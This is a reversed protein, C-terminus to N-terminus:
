DSDSAKVVKKIGNISNTLLSRVKEDDNMHDTYRMCMFLIHAPLGPMHTLMMQPTLEICLPLVCCLDNEDSSNDDAGTVLIYIHSNDGDVTVRL